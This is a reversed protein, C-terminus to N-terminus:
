REGGGSIYCPIRRYMNFAFTAYIAACLISRILLINPDLFSFDITQSECGEVDVCIEPSSTSGNKYADVCCDVILRLDGAFSFADDFEAKIDLMTSSIYNDSPVFISQFFEGLKEFFNGFTDVFKNFFETLKKLIDNLVDIVKSLDNHMKNILQTIKIEIGKNPDQTDPDSNQLDNDLDTLLDKFEPLTITPAVLEGGFEDDWDTVPDGGVIDGWYNLPLNTETNIYDYVSTVASASLSCIMNIASTGETLVWDGWTGNSYFIRQYHKFSVEGLDASCFYRTGRSNEYVTLPAGDYYFFYKDEYGGDARIAFIYYNSGATDFDFDSDPFPKGTYKKGYKDQYWQEFQERFDFIGLTELTKDYINLISDDVKNDTGEVANHLKDELEDIYRDLEADSGPFLNTGLLDTQFRINDNRWQEFTLNGSVFDRTSVFWDSYIDRISRYEGDFTFASVNICLLSFSLAACLFVSFIKQFNVKLKRKQM